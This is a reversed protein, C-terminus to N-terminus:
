HSSAMLPAQSSEPTHHAHQTPSTTCGGSSSATIGNPILRAEAQAQTLATGSREELPAASVLGVVSATIAILFSFKM